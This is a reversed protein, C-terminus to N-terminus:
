VFWRRMMLQGVFRQLSNIGHLQLGYNIICICCVAALVRVLLDGIALFIGVLGFAVCLTGIVKNQNYRKM